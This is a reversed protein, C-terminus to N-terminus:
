HHLLDHDVINKSAWHDTQITSWCIQYSSDTLFGDEQNTANANQCLRITYPGTLFVPPWTSGGLKLNLDLDKGNQTLKNSDLKETIETQM